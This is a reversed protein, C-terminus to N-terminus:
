RLASLATACSFGHCNRFITRLSPKKSLSARLSIVVPMHASEAWGQKPYSGRIWFDILRGRKALLAAILYAHTKGTGVESEALSIGKKSIVALIHEALEIQRDRIAYGYLPLIEQFIHNATDILKDDRTSEDPKRDTTHIGDGRISLTSIKAAMKEHGDQELRNKRRSIIESAGTKYNTATYVHMGAPTQRETLACGYAAFVLSGKKYLFHQAADRPLEYIIENTLKV